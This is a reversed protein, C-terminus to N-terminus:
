LQELRFAAYAASHEIIEAAFDSVPEAIACVGAVWMAGLLGITTKM